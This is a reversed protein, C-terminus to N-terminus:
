VRILINLLNAISSRTPASLAFSFSCKDLLVYYCVKMKSKDEQEFEEDDYDVGSLM